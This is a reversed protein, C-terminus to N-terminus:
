TSESHRLSPYAIAVKERDLKVLVADVSKMSTGPPVDIAYAGFKPLGTSTCGLRHARELVSKIGRTADRKLRLLWITSHESRVKHKWSSVREARERVTIVDGVSLGKVFLPPLLLRFGAEETDFPLSEIAVPPWDEEVDLPFSLSRRNTNRQAKKVRTTGPSVVSM